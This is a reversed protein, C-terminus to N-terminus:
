CTMKLSVPTASAGVIVIVMGIMQIMATVMTVQLGIEFVIEFGERVPNGDSTRM